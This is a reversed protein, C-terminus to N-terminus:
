MLQSLLWERLSKKNLLVKARLSSLKVEKICMGRQWKTITILSFVSPDAQHSAVIAASIVAKITSGSYLIHHVYENGATSYQKLEVTFTYM